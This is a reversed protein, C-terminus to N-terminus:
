AYGWEERNKMLARLQKLGKHQWTKVTGEPKGLIAAIDMLTMDNYYELVLVHRYKPKIQQLVAHIEMRDHRIMVPAEMMQQLVDPSQPVARKRRRQEDICVYILIRIIWPKFAQPNRLSGYKIWARCTAEQVAELADDRSRLYSYAINMLTDKHSMVMQYFTTEAESKHLVSGKSEMKVGAM